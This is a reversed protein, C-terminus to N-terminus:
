KTKIDEVQVAVVLYREDDINTCTSLVALKSDPKIVVSDRVNKVLAKPNNAEEAFAAFGSATDFDFAYYVHRDDYVFASKIAYKLIHGPTYVYFFENRDFIEKDRLYKLTGFMTLNRMNHGYILTCPDTFDPKNVKQIYIVGGTSYKEEIDRRLYYDEAKEDGTRLVPYDVAIDDSEFKIWGCVDKNQEKLATFDIPNQPLEAEISSNNKFESYDERFPFYHKVAIIVAVAFFLAAIIGLIVSIARNLKNSKRNM